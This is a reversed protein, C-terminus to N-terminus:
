PRVLPLADVAVLADHYARSAPQRARHAAVLHADKADLLTREMLNIREGDFICARSLRSDRFRIWALRRLFRDIELFDLFERDITRAFQKLDQSNLVGERLHCTGIRTRRM